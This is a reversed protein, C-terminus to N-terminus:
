ICCATNGVTAHCANDECDTFGNGDNDIGDSCLATTVEANCVTVNPNRSCSFDDCDTFENEDQDVGDSCQADNCELYDPCDCVTVNENRNCTYTGCDQYGDGDNDIEDSCAADNNEGCFWECSFDDCDTFTNGDNDVGDTCASLTNEGEGPTGDPTTDPTGDTSTDPVSDTGTDGGTVCQAEGAVMQCVLGSSECNSQTVWREATCRQVTNGSCRTQGSTCQEDSARSCATSVLLVLIATLTAHKEMASFM